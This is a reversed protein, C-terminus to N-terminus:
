VNCPVPIVVADVLTDFLPDIASSCAASKEIGADAMEAVTLRVLNGDTM